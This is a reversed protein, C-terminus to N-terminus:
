FPAGSGERADAKRTRVRRDGLQEFGILIQLYVALQQVTLWEGQCNQSRAQHAVSHRM